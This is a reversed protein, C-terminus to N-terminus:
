VVGVFVEFEVIILGYEIIMNLYNEEVKIGKYFLVM